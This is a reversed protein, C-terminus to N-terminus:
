AYYKGKLDGSLPWLKSPSSRWLTEREAATHHCVSGASAAAQESEPAESRLQPRPRRRKLHRLQPRDQAQRHPQIRRTTGRDCPGAAGKFVEYTEEDGAVLGCELRLAVGPQIVDDLTFGSPTQKSRLREYMAPTLFDTMLNNHKSLDPYEQESAYKM